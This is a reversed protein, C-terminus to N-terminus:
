LKQLRFMRSPKYDVDVMSKVRRMRLRRERVEKEKELEVQQRAEDFERIFFYNFGLRRGSMPM